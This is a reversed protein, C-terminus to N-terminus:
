QKFSFPFGLIALEGRGVKVVRRQCRQCPNWYRAVVPSQLATRARYDSASFSSSCRSHVFTLSLVLDPPLRRFRFLGNSVNVQSIWSRSQETLGSIFLRLHHFYSVAFHPKLTVLDSELLWPDIGASSETEFVDLGAASLHGSKLAEVLAPESIVATPPFHVFLLTLPPCLRRGDRRRLFFDIGGPGRAVNILVAGKPLLAIERAGIM